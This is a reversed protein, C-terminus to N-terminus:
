VLSKFIQIEDRMISFCNGILVSDQVTFPKPFRNILGVMIWFVSETDEGAVSLLRQIM